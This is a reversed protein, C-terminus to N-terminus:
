FSLLHISCLFYFLEMSVAIYMLFLFLAKIERNDYVYFKYLFLGPKKWTTLFNICFGVSIHQLILLFNLLQKQQNLYYCVFHFFVYIYKKAVQYRIKLNLILIHTFILTRTMKGKYKRRKLLLTHRYKNFNDIISNM